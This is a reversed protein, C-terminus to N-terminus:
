LSEILLGEILTFHRRNNTLVKLGHRLGTSGILLDFDGTMKGAARLRGRHHGFIKCTEDDISLVTVGRLFDNLARENGAPNSSNYVGEYLEALSVVSVACGEDRLTNLRSVINPHGNLYHIIWDTDILYRSTM